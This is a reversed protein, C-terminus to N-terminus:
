IVHFAKLLILIVVLSETTIVINIMIGRSNRSPASLGDM